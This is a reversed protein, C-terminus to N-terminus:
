YINNYRQLLVLQLLKVRIFFASTVTSLFSNLRVPPLVPSPYVRTMMALINVIQSSQEDSSPHVTASVVIEAMATVMM